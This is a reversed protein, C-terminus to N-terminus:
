WRGLSPSLSGQPKIFM